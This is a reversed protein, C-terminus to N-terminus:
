RGRDVLIGAALATSLATLFDPLPVPPAVQNYGAWLAAVDDHEGARAVMVELAVGRVYRLGSPYADTALHDVRRIRLGEIAARRVTRLDPGPTVDLTPWSKLAEFAERVAAEPVDADGPFPTGDPDSPEGPGQASGAGGAALAAEARTLWYSTGYAQAADRFFPASARRYLRYVERERADFFALADSVLPPDVLATHATVAALWGSALAKKVGYSSLPDICSGADGVLLLGPEAFRSSTYLSAPCAWAQGDPEAGDLLACLHPAKRMEVDLLAGVDRGSLDSFRHDVMATFCRVRGSLPVSWAWGDAYSEVLTRGAHADPWGTPSRWRRVLALTTTSRDPERWARAALGHRGTADLLWPAVLTRSGGGDLDCVVSWGGGELRGASRATFGHLLTVGASEAERGLVAELGARDLHWGGKAEAFTEIRPEGGAWWVTNGANRVFGGGHLADWAGVEDLLRGASPPISEALPGAPPHTPRVLAVRHSRRALVSAAACGGPGGGLVIVDFSNM